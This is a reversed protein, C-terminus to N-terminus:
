PVIQLRFFLQDWNQVDTYQPFAMSTNTATFASGQNTWTNLDASVQVQYNTGIM